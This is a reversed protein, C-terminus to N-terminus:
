PKPRKGSPIVAAKASELSGGLVAIAVPARKAFAVGIVDPRIWALKGGGPLVDGIKLFKMAPDGDFQVMVQTEDGRQVVGSIRWNPPTLPTSRVAWDTRANSEWMQEVSTNTSGWGAPAVNPRNSNPTAVRGPSATTTASAPSRTAAAATALAAAADFLEPPRMYLPPTLLTEGRGIGDSNSMAAPGLPATAVVSTARSADASATSAAGASAIRTEPRPIDAQSFGYWAGFAAALASAVVGAITVLGRKANGTPTADEVVFVRM